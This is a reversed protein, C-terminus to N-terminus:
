VSGPLLEAWTQRMQNSTGREVAISVSLVAAERFREVHAVRSTRNIGIPVMSKEEQGFLVTNYHEYPVEFRRQLVLEALV